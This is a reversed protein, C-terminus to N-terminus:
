HDGSIATISDAHGHDGLRLWIHDGRHLDSLAASQANQRTSGRLITARESLVITQRSGNSDIDISREGNYSRVGRVVGAVMKGSDRERIPRDVVVPAGERQIQVMHTDAVWEVYDGLAEAVFRLPVLTTGNVVQAPQSLPQTQGNITASSAGIVLVVLRGTGRATITSTASDYDVNAGLAEFVGRLPVLVSGHVEVPQARSFTIPNGDVTVGIPGSGEVDASLTSVSGLAILVVIIAIVNMHLKLMM